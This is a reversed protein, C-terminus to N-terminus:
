RAKADALELIVQASRRACDARLQAHLAAFRETIAACRAPQELQELLAQGMAQATAQQQIFEPVVSDNCLINPLGIWPLYGMNRMIRHTLWAMKYAIVMPRRFLAAELTATGSAVLATDCAALAQHSRGQTITLRVRELAPMAAAVDRLREYLAAGACPMVFHLDPQRQSLWVATKLFEEGMYRIEGPRSGPLLAVVRGAEPLGLTRRAGAVDVTQPILDALPHGVYTAPIGAADYLPKEFPFVLLMHDVSEAIRSLRNRRWAWVSPGIFHATKVGNQRLRAELGLNFDPGDVGVFVSPDWALMRRALARRLGVLRPYQRLVEAYGRVSLEEIGWWADFGQAAM